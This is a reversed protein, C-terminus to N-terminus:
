GGLTDPDRGLGYPTRVVHAADNGDLLARSAARMGPTVYGREHHVHWTPARYRLSRGTVGARRLRAGLDKDEMREMREDFGAIAVVDDRWASANGGHFGVPERAFREDLLRALTPIRGALLRRARRNGPRLARLGDLAGSSVEEPTLASSADPALLICSGSLYTRPRRYQLHSRVFDPGPICDGDLFLLYDGGAAEIARNVIRAKRLGDDQQWVHRVVKASTAAASEILQRTAPGSGDDAVLVEFSTTTQRELGALVLALAHPNEYTAVIVTAEPSPRGSPRSTM